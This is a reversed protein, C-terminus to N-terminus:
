TVGSNPVFSQQRLTGAGVTHDIAQFEKAYGVSVCFGWVETAATGQLKPCLGLVSDCGQCVM